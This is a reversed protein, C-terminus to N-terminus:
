TPSSSRRSCSLIVYVQKWLIDRQEEAVSMLGQMSELSGKTSENLKELEQSLITHHIKRFDRDLIKELAQVKSLMGNWDERQILDRGLNRLRRRFFRLVSRFQFELIHQYLDVITIEFADKLDEPVTATADQDKPLLLTELAVYYRMRGTVYTFGARNAQETASSQTFLPLILCIGAWAMSAEPSPRVAQDILTKAWQVLEAAQAIQDQLVFEYGAIHYKIKKEDMRQRGAKIIKDLQERRARPDENDIRNDTDDLYETAQDLSSSNLTDSNSGAVPNAAAIYPRCSIRV